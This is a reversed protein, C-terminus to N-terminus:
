LYASPLKDIALSQFTQVATMSGSKAFVSSLTHAVSQSEITQSRSYHEWCAQSKWGIHRQAEEETQHCLKLLIACGGRISHTTEGQFVGLASLYSQLRRNVAPQSLKMDLVRGDSTTTRFVYGSDIYVGLNPVQSIYEDLATVACFRSDPCIPVVVINESRQKGYTQRIVLGQQDPLRFIEQLVLKTLDGGREGTFYQLLFFARDRLLLFKDRPSLGLVRLERNLYGCLQKLKEPLLPPAQKVPVHAAAQEHRVLVHTIGKQQFLADYIHLVAGGPYGFITEVGEDKLARVLMEAGSLLEM